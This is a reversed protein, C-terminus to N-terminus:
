RESVSPGNCMARRLRFFSANILNDRMTASCDCCFELSCLFRFFHSAKASFLIYVRTKRGTRGVPKFYGDRVASAPALSAPHRGITRQIQLESASFSTKRNFSGPFIGTYAHNRKFFLLGHNEGRDFRSTFFPHGVQKKKTGVDKQEPIIECGSLDVSDIDIETIRPRSFIFGFSSKSIALIQFGVFCQQTRAPVNMELGIIGAKKLKRHAFKFDGPEAYTFYRPVKM